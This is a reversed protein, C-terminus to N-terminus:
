VNILLKILERQKINKSKMVFNTKNKTKKQSGVRM